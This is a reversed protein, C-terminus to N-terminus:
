ITAQCAQLRGPQGGSVSLTLTPNRNVLMAWDSPLLIPLTARPLPSLKAECDTQLAPPPCALEHLEHTQTHTHTDCAPRRTTGGRLHAHSTHARAGTTELAGTGQAHASLGRAPHPGFRHQGASLREGVSPKLARDREPAAGGEASAPAGLHRSRLDASRRVPRACGGRRLGLSSPSARLHPATQAWQVVFDGHVSLPSNARAPARVHMRERTAPGTRRLLARSQAERPPPM